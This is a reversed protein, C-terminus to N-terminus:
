GTMLYPQKKGLFDARSPAFVMIYSKKLMLLLIVQILKTLFSSLWNSLHGAKDPKLRLEKNRGPYLVIGM